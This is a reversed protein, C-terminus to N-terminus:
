LDLSFILSHAIHQGWRCVMTKPDDQLFDIKGGDGHSSHHLIAALSQQRHFTPARDGALEDDSSSEEPIANPNEGRLIMAAQSWISAQSGSTLVSVNDNNTPNHDPEEKTLTMSPHISPNGQLSPHISCCYCGLRNRREACPRASHRGSSFPLHKWLSVPRVVGRSSVVFLLLISRLFLPTTPTRIKRALRRDCRAGALGSQSHSDWKSKGSGCEWLPMAAFTKQRGVLTRSVNKAERLAVAGDHHLWNATSNQKYM